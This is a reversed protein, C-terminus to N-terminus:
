VVSFLITKVNLMLSLTSLYLILKSEDIIHSTTIILYKKKQKQQPEQFHHQKEGALRHTGGERADTAQESVADKILAAGVWSCACAKFLQGSNLGCSVRESKTQIERKEGEREEEEGWTMGKEKVEDWRLSKKEKGKECCQQCMKLLGPRNLRISPAYVTLVGKLSFAPCSMAEQTSVQVSCVRM